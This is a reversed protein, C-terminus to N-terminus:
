VLRASTYKMEGMSEKIATITLKGNKVDANRISNTYFQAENNGWGNGGLDYGWKTSDPVGKYDFEDSWVPKDEFKGDSDHLTQSMSISRNTGTKDACFFCLLTLSALITSRTM